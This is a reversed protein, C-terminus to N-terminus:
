NGGLITQDHSIVGNLGSRVTNIQDTSLGQSKLYTVFDRSNAGPTYTGAYGEMIGKLYQGPDTGAPAPPIEGHLYMLYVTERVQESMIERANQSFKQMAAGTFDPKSHQSLWKFMSKKTGTIGIRAGWQVIQAEVGVSPILSTVAVDVFIEGALWKWDWAKSKGSADEMGNAQLAKLVLSLSTGQNEAWTTIEQEKVDMPTGPPFTPFGTSSDAIAAKALQVAVDDHGKTLHKFFEYASPNRAIETINGAAIGAISNRVVDPINDLTGQAGLGVLDYRIMSADFGPGTGAARLLDAAPGNLSGDNLGNMVQLDSFMRYLPRVTVGHGQADSFMNDSHLIAAAADPNRALAQFVVPDPPNTWKYWNEFATMSLWDKSYVGFKLLDNFAKRDDYANNRDLIKGLDGIIQRNFSPGNTATALSEDLVRLGSDDGHLKKSLSLIGRAGLNNYFETVFQLANPDDYPLQSLIEKLRATDKEGAAQKALRDAASMDSYDKAYKNQDVLGVLALMSTQTTYVGGSQIATRYDQAVSGATCVGKDADVFAVAVRSVWDDRSWWTKLASGLTTLADQSPGPEALHPCPAATWAAVARQVSGLLTQANQDWTTMTQSYKMLNAPRASSTGQPAM